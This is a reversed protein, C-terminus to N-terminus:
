CKKDETEECLADSKPIDSLLRANPYNVKDYNFRFDEEPHNMNCCESACGRSSYLKGCDCCEFGAVLKVKDKSFDDKEDCDSQCRKMCNKAKRETQHLEFCVPCEYGNVYRVNSM